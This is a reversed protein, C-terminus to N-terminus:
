FVFPGCNFVFLLGGVVLNSIAVYDGTRRGGISDHMYGGVLPGIFMALAYIFGYADNVKDYIAADLEPDEGEIANLEVTVRELMEPIIPIFVFYQFVGMLPFAMIIIWYSSPFNLMSSPGMMFCCIAFGFMAIVFQLKRPFATECFHPLILCMPLYTVQQIAMVYGVQDKDFGFQGLYPGIYGQFYVLNTTGFFCAILAFDFHKNKM